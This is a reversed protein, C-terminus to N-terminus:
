LQDSGCVTSMLGKKRNQIIFLELKADPYKEINTSGKTQCDM